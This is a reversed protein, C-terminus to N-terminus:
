WDLNKYSVTTKPLLDRRMKRMLRQYEEDARRLVSPQSDYTAYKQVAKWAIAQHFRTALGTPEDAALSFTQPTKAYSFTLQYIKDPAPHFAALGDVTETIYRPLGVETNTTFGSAYFYEWPLYCLRREIADAYELTAGSAEPRRFSDDFITCTTWNIEAIDSTDTASGALTQPYVPDYLDYQGWHKFYGSFNRGGATNPTTMNLGVPVRGTFPVDPVIKLDIYGETPTSIASGSAPSFYMIDYTTTVGDLTLVVDEMSTSTEYSTTGDFFHLRPFIQVTGQKQMFQWGSYEIQIEEWAQIVWNCFKSQLTNGTTVIASLQDIDTGSERIAMNVLQLYTM